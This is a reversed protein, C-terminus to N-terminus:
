VGSSHTVCSCPRQNADEALMELKATAGFVVGFDSGTIIPFGVTSLAVIM